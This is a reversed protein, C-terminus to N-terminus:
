ICSQNKTHHNVMAELFKVLRHYKDIHRCDYIALHYVRIKKLYLEFKIESM